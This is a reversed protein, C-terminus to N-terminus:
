GDCAMREANSKRRAEGSKIGWPACVRAPCSLNKSNRMQKALVKVTQRNDIRHAVGIARGAVKTLFLAYRHTFKAPQYHDPNNM